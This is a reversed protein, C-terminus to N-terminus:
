EGRMEIDRRLYEAWATSSWIRGIDSEDVVLSKEESPETEGTAASDPSNSM